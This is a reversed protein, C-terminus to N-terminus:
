SAPSTAKNNSPLSARFSNALVLPASRFPTSFPNLRPALGVPQHAATPPAAVTGAVGAVRRGGGGAPLEEVLGDLGQAAGEAEGGGAGRSVSGLGLRGDRKSFDEVVLGPREGEPQFGQVEVEAGSPHLSGTQHATTLHTINNSFMCVM